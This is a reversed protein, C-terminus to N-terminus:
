FRFRIKSISIEFVCISLILIVSGLVIVSGWFSLLYYLPSALLGGIVGGGEGCIGSNWLTSFFGVIGGTTEIKDVINWFACVCIFLIFSMIFKSKNKGRQKKLMYYVGGAIFCIGSIYATGGFLGLFLSKLIEGMIGTIDTFLSISLFIGFVISIIAILDYNLQVNKEASSKQSSAKKKKKKSVERAM